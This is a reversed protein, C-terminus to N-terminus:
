FALIALQPVQELRGREVRACVAHVIAAVLDAFLASWTHSVFARPAGVHARMAPLEAFRCRLRKTAPKILLAVLQATTITRRVAMPLSALLLLLFRVRVARGAHREEGEATLGGSAAVFPADVAVVAAKAADEPVKRVAANLSKKCKFCHWPANGWQEAFANGCHECPAREGAALCTKAADALAAEAATPTPPAGEGADPPEAAWHEVISTWTAEEVGQHVGSANSTTTPSRASNTGEELRVDGADVADSKSEGCGM